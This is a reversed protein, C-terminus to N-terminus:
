VPVSKVACCQDGLAPEPEPRSPVQKSAPRLHESEPETMQRPGPESHPGPESEKEPGPETKSGATPKESM